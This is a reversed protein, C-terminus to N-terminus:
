NSLRGNKSINLNYAIIKGGPYVIMGIHDEPHYILDVFNDDSPEITGIKQGTNINYFNIKPNEPENVEDFNAIITDNLIFQHSNDLSDIFHDKFWEVGFAQQAASFFLVVILFTFLKRM